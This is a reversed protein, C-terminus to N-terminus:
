RGRRISVVFRDPMTAGRGVGSFQTALFKDVRSLRAGMPMEPHASAIRGILRAMGRPDYGARHLLVTGMLDAEIEYQELRPKHVVAYAQEAFEDLDDEVADRSTESDLEDMANDARLRAAQVKMERLGHRRVIHIIEHAIVGALEAEDRCLSLLGRSLFIYGGPVAFSGVGASDLIYVSFYYDYFTTESLLNTAILNAYRQLLPDRVLGTAAVRAAVALGVGNERPGIDYGQKSITRDEAAGLAVAGSRYPLLLARFAWFETASFFPGQQAYFSDLAGRQVNRIQGAFGKVAAGVTGRSARADAWEKSMAELTGAQRKEDLSAEALWGMKTEAQVRLWRDKEEVKRVKTNVPLNAVVPFFTGPGERLQNNSRKTYLDAAWAVVPITVALLISLVRYSLRM